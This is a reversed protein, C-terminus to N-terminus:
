PRCLKVPLIVMVKDNRVSISVWLNLFGSKQLKRNHTKVCALYVCLCFSIVIPAGKKPPRTRVIRVRWILKCIKIKKPSPLCIREDTKLKIRNFFYFCICKECNTMLIMTLWMTQQKGAPNPKYPDMHPRLPLPHYM